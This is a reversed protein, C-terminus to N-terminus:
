YSEDLLGEKTLIEKLNFYTELLQKREKLTRNPPITENTEIPTIRIKDGTDIKSSDWQLSAGREDDGGTISIGLECSLTIIVVGKNVAVVRQEDNITIKFGKM